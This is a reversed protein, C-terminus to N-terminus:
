PLMRATAVADLDVAAGWSRVQQAWPLSWFTAIDSDNAFQAQLLPDLFIRRYADCALVQSQYSRRLAVREHDGPPYATLVRNFGNHHEAANRLEYLERLLAVVPASNGAFLQCRHAFSSTSRGIPPIVLAEVARIFQHLREEGHYEMLGRLWAHFGKRLREHHGHGAHVARMGAATCAATLLSERDLRAIRVRNPRYLTELHSVQRISVTGDVNAGTLVMGGDHHFVETLFLGYLLCLVSERLSENEHDLVGPTQSHTHAVLALNTHELDRARISGLWETWASDLAFPSEFLIWMGDGLDIPDHLTRDLSANELAVCAFKHSVALPFPM